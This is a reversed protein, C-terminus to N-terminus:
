QYSATHMHHLHRHVGSFYCDWWRKEDKVVYLGGSQLCSRSQGCRSKQENSTRLLFRIGTLLISPSVCKVSPCPHMSPRLPLSPHISQHTSKFSFLICPRTCAMLLWALCLLLSKPLCAPAHVSSPFVIVPYAYHLFLSSPSPHISPLCALTKNYVHM